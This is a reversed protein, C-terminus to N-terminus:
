KEVEKLQEIVNKPEFGIDQTLKDMIFGSKLPRDAAQKLDATLIPNIYSADLGYYDATKVAWAYRSLLESGCVHYVGSCSKDVLKWIAEALDSALTPNGIQDTVINVQKGIELNSKIFQVFSPRIKNGKGWLLMTRVILSQPNANLVLPESEWKIKGYVGLPDVVDDEIYPGNEGNFIYDTSIHVMPIGMEAMWGVADRNLLACQATEKECLDVNTMAAANIIWDPRSKSIFSQLEEKIRIDVQVYKTVEPVYCIEEIGAGICSFNLPTHALLNQGLLGNSGFILVKM